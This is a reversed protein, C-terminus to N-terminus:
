KMKELVAVSGDEVIEGRDMILIRNCNERLFEVWHTVVLITKRAKFFEKIKQEAKKRFTADGVTIGEDLILIDPNAHVAISFGLRLKMGESYTYLPADIFNGIDAFAVIDDYVAHIEQKSMGVVLGNLFINEEGTLDPHFGAELDILSVVKGKTAVTGSTPTTIGAIVKLLTTKGSGNHGIIGVKQGAPIQLSLDNLAVFRETRNKKILSEMFTPKEHHLTYVKTINTLEVALPVSKQKVM